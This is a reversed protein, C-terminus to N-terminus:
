PPMTEQAPTFAPAGPPRARGPEVFPPHADRYCKTGLGLVFAGLVFVVVRKETPTLLLRQRAQDFKSRWRKKM